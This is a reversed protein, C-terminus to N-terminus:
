SPLGALCTRAVGLRESSDRHSTHYHSVLPPLGSAYLNSSYKKMLRPPSRPHWSPHSLCSTMLGPQRGGCLVERGRRPGCAWGAGARKLAIM